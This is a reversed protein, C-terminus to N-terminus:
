HEVYADPSVEIAEQIHIREKHLLKKKGKCTGWLRVDYKGKRPFAYKISHEKAIASNGNGFDLEYDILAHYDNINFHLSEGAEFYGSIELNDKPSNSEFPATSVTRSDRDIENSPGSAPDPTYVSTFDTTSNDMLGKIAFFSFLCIFVCVVFEYSFFQTKKTFESKLRNPDKM